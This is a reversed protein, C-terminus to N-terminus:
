CPLHQPPTSLKEFQRNYTPCTLLRLNCKVQYVQLISQEWHPKNLDRQRHTNVSGKYYTTHGPPCMQGMAIRSVADPDYRSYVSM